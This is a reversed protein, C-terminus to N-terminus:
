KQKVVSKLNDFGKEFQDGVMKDCNIFLSIAKGMFNNKGSMTWNVITKNDSEKFTFITINHASFPKEFDLDFQVKENANSETITMKGKGVDNNGDWDFGAGKGEKPGFFNTKAKPDLKSWPSWTNWNELNNVQDFVNKIPAEITTSRTITFESPQMLIAILLITILIAFVILIKKIM